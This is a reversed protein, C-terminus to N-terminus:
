KHSRLYANLLPFLLCDDGLFILLRVCNLPSSLPFVLSSGTPMLPQPNWSLVLTTWLGGKPM